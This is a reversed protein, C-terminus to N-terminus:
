IGNKSQMKVSLLNPIGNEHHDCIRIHAADLLLQQQLRQQLYTKLETEPRDTEMWFIVHVNQPQLSLEYVSTWFEWKRFGPYWKRALPFMNRYVWKRHYYLHIIRFLRLSDQVKQAIKEVLQDPNERVVNMPDTKQWQNRISYNKVEFMYLNAGQFIGLFDIGKLGTGALIQYYNHEDYKRIDWGGNFEFLLGSERFIM